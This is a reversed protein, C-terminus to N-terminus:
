CGQNVKIINFYKSNSVKAGILNGNPDYGEEPTYNLMDKDYASKLKLAQDMFKAKDKDKCEAWLKGIKKSQETVALDKIDKDKRKEQAFLFYASMPGKPKSPDLKPM